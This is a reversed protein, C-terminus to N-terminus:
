WGKGKIAEEIRKTGMSGWIGELSRTVVYPTVAIGVGIAAAAAEQPASDMTFAAFVVVMGVLGMLGTIAWFIRIM